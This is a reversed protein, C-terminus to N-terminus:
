PDVYQLVGDTRSTIFLRGTAPDVAVTNPQRVTPLAARPHPQPDDLDIRVLQNRATLTVWLRDRNPDYALGYPTGDLPVAAVRRLRPAPEYILLRQGRTDVVIFRGRRDAVIHTPGVGASTRGIRVRRAADYVVLEHAGVDVLGVLNGAAALGGPQTVDTFRHVVQGARLLVLARGLEDAVAITGDVVATADHAYRGIPIDAVIRGDPLAVTVLSGTSENPVLVPGGPAALQLHRLRGPLPTRATIVGSRGDVLVLEHPDRVGVAVLHTTPDAVVGEPQQGVAIVQGAPATRPRPADAPEGAGASGCGSTSSVLWGLVAALALRGFGPRYLVAHPV